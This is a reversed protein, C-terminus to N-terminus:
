WSRTKFHYPVSSDWRLFKFCITLNFGITMCDIQHKARLNARCLDITVYLSIRCECYERSFVQVVRPEDERNIMTVQNQWPKGIVVLDAPCPVTTVNLLECNYSIKIHISKSIYRGCCLQGLREWLGRINETRKQRFIIRSNAFCISSILSAAAAAAHDLSRM